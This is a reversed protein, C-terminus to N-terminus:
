LHDVLADLRKTVKFTQRLDNVNLVSLIFVLPFDFM